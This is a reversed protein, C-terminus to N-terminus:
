SIVSGFLSAAAIAYAGYLLAIPFYKKENRCEEIFEKITYGNQRNFLRLVLLWVLLAIVAQLLSFTLGSFFVTQYDM